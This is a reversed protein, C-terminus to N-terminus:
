GILGPKITKQDLGAHGALPLQNEVRLYWALSACHVASEGVVHRFSMVYGTQWVAQSRGGDVRNLRLLARQAVASIACSRDIGGIGASPQEAGFATM